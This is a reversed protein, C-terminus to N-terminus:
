AGGATVLESQAAGASSAVSMLYTAGPSFQVGPVTMQFLVSGGPQLSTSVSVAGPNAAMTPCTDALISRTAPNLLSYCFTASAQVGSLTFYVSSVGSTGTNTVTVAVVAAFSGQRISPASLTIGPGGEAKTLGAAASYVIGSGGVAIGILIFTAVFGSM